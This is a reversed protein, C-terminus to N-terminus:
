FRLKATAGGFNSMVIMGLAQRKGSRMPTM